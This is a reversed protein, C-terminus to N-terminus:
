TMTPGSPRTPTSSPAPSARRRGRHGRRRRRPGPLTEGRRSCGRLAGSAVVTFEGRGGCRNPLPTAAVTHSCRPSRSPPPSMACAPTGASDLPDTPSRSPHRDPRRSRRRRLAQRTHNPDVEIAADGHLPRVAQRVTTEADRRRDVRLERDGAARLTEGRQRHHAEDLTALEAQSVVARDTSPSSRGSISSRTVTSCSRAWREPM